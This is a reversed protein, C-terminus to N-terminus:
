TARYRDFPADERARTLQPRRERYRSLETAQKLMRGRLEDKREEVQRGLTLGDIIWWVFGILVFYSMIQLLASGPKGMYFRHASVFGLFFWLVYALGTTPADNIVQHEVYSLEATSLGEYPEDFERTMGAVM